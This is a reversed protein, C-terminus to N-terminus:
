YGGRLALVLHLTSGAEINCEEMTMNDAMQKGTFVMRQQEPPIGEVEEVRRKIHMITDDPEIDIRVEKGTLTKVKVRM